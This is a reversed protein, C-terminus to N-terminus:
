ADESWSLRGPKGSEETILGAASLEARLEAPMQRAIRTMMFVDLAAKLAEQDEFKDAYPALFEAMTPPYPWTKMFYEDDYRTPM